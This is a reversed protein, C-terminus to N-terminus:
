DESGRLTTNFADRLGNGFLNFSIMLLSIVLAPFFIIHPYAGIGATQGENLLAGISSIGGSSFDIIGLYSLSTESFIVGPIMLVCSTVLTGIANPLIHQFILRADTAGLTRSALVYEQGKFRYFQMRTTSSVGVWGNYVFGILVAILIKVIPSLQLSNNGVLGVQTLSMIIISPVNAIIDTFREMILDTTGGYYGAIAGWILGILFNVLSVGVGLLLSFGCGKALRLCIDQGSANTGFLFKAEFGYELEFYDFYDVRVTYRDNIIKSYVLEGNSDRLYVDELENKDNYYIEFDTDSYRGESNKVPILKFYHSNKSYEDELNDIIKSVVDPAVGESALQLSLKYLYGQKEPDTETKNEFKTYNLLPKIVSPKGAEVKENNFEILEEYDAPSLELVKCGIAYSDRRVIYRTQNGILINEVVEEGIKEVRPHNADTVSALKYEKETLVETYTGDWFGDADDFLKPLVSDFKSKFGDQYAIPDVYNKPDIIPEVIAFLSILLIIIFAVVSAKNQLFRRLCDEFYSIPRTEFKTDHLREDKHAFAFKNDSQMLEKNDSM